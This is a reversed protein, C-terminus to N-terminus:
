ISHCNCLCCLLFSPSPFARTGFFLPTSLKPPTPTLSLTFPPRSGTPLITPRALALLLPRPKRKPLVKPGAEAPPSPSSILTTQTPPCRPNFQLIPQFQFLPAVRLFPLKGCSCSCNPCHAIIPQALQNSLKFQDVECHDHLFTM